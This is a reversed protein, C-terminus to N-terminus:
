GDDSDDRYEDWDIWNVQLDPPLPADERLAAAARALSDLMDRVYPDRRAGPARDGSLRDLQGLCWYFADEGPLPERQPPFVTLAEEEDRIRDVEAAVAASGVLRRPPRRALALVTLRHRALFARAVETGVALETAGDAGHDAPPTTETNM